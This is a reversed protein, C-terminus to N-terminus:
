QWPFGVSLALQRALMIKAPFIINNASVAGESQKLSFLFPAFAKRVSVGESKNRISMTGVKFVGQQAGPWSMNMKASMQQGAHGTVMVGDAWLEEVLTTFDLDLKVMMEQTLDQPKM